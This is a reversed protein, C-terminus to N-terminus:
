QVYSQLVKCNEWIIEIQRKGVISRLEEQLDPSWDKAGDDFAGIYTEVDVRFYSTESVRWKELLHLLHRPPLNEKHDHFITLM